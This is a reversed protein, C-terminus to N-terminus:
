VVHKEGEEKSVEVPDLEERDYYDEDRMLFTRMWKAILVLVVCGIFGYVAYFGLLGEWHHYTHRHIIFDLIFLLVCSAYLLYLIIQVNRPNDFFHQNNKAM